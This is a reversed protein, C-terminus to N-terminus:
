CLLGGVLCSGAAALGGGLLGGGATAWGLLGSQYAVMVGGACCAWSFSGGLTEMQEFTLEKM